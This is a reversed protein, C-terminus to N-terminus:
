EESYNTSQTNSSSEDVLEPTVFYKLENFRLTIYRGEKIDVPKGNEFLGTAPNWVRDYCRIHTTTPTLKSIAEQAQEESELEGLDLEGDVEAGVVEEYDVNFYKKGNRDQPTDLFWSGKRLGLTNTIIYSGVGIKEVNPTFGFESENEITHSNTHLKIIPSAVKLTGGSGITTNKDDYLQRAPKIVGFRVTHVMCGGNEINFSIFNGTWGDGMGYPASIITRWPPVSSSVSSETRFWGTRWRILSTKEDAVLAEGIGGGANILSASGLGLDGRVQAASGRSILTRTFSTSASNWWATIAGRVRRATWGKVVNATGDQAEAQPIETSLSEVDTYLETFNANTKTFAGRVDDGGAGDPASGLNINQIAM